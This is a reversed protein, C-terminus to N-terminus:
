TFAVLNQYQKSNIKKRTLLNLNKQTQDKPHLCPTAISYFFTLRSLDM